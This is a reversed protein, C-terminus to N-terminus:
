EGGFPISDGNAAVCVACVRGSRGDPLDPTCTCSNLALDRAELLEKDADNAVEALRELETWEMGPEGNNLCWEVYDDYQKQAIDAHEKATRVAQPVPRRSSVQDFTTEKEGETMEIGVWGMNSNGTVM